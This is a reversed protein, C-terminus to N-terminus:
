IQRLSFSFQVDRVWFIALEKKLITNKFALMERHQSKNNAGM